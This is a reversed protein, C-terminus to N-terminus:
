VGVMFNKSYNYSASFKEDKWGLIINFEATVNKNGVTISSTQSDIQGLEPMVKKYKGIEQSFIQNFQTKDGGFSGAATEMSNYIYFNITEEKAYISEISSGFYAEEKIDKARQYFTYLSFITLVLTALVLVVISIEMSAKKNRMNNHGPM